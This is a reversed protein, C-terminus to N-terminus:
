SREMGRRRGKNTQKDKRLHPFPRIFMENNRKYLLINGSNVYM